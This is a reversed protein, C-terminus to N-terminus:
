LEDSVEAVQKRAMARTLVVVSASTPMGNDSAIVRDGALDNGLILSVDQVPLFPRMGVIVPGTVLDSKLHISHLPVSVCGLEV